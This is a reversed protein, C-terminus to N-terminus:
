TVSFCNGPSYSSVTINNLPRESQSIYFGKKPLLYMQVSCQGHKVMMSSWLTNVNTLQTSLCIQDSPLTSKSVKNQILHFSFFLM